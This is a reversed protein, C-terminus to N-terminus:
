NRTPARFCYRDRDKQVRDLRALDDLRHAVFREAYSTGGVDANMRETVEEPTLCKDAERLIRLVRDDHSEDLPPM